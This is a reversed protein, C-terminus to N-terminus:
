RMALMACVYQLAHCLGPHFRRGHGGPGDSTARVTPARNIAGTHLYVRGYTSLDFGHVLGYGLQGFSKVAYGMQPLISFGSSCVRM